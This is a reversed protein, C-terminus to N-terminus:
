FPCEHMDRKDCFYKRAIFSFRAADHNRNARSEQESSWNNRMGFACLSKNSSGTQVVQYKSKVMTAEYWM